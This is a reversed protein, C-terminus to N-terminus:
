NKDRGTWRQYYLGFSMRVSNGKMKNASEIRWIRKLDQELPQPVHQSNLAVAIVLVTVARKKLHLTTTVKLRRSHQNQM